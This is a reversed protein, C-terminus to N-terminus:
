AAYRTLVPARDVQLQAYASLSHAIFADSAARDHTFLLRGYAAVQSAYVVNNASLLGVDVERGFISALDAALSLRDAPPLHQQTRLLLAIDVDSDARLGGKVASGHLYAALIEPCRAIRAAAETLQDPTLHAPTNM